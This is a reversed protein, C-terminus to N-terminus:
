RGQALMGVGGQGGARGRAVRGGQQGISVRGGAGLLAAPQIADAGRHSVLREVRQLEGCLRQGGVEGARSDRGVLQAPPGELHRAGGHVKHTAEGGDATRAPSSAAHSHLQSTSCHLSAAPHFPLGQGHQQAAPSACAM